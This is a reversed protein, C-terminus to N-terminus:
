GGHREYAYKGGNKICREFGQLNTRRGAASRMQRVCTAFHASRAARVVSRIFSLALSAVAKTTVLLGSQQFSQQALLPLLCQTRSRSSLCQNQPFQFWSSFAQCPRHSTVFEKVHARTCTLGHCLSVWPHPQLYLTQLRPCQRSEKSIIRSNRHGQLQLM